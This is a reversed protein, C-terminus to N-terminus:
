PLRMLRIFVPFRVAKKNEWQPRITEMFAPIPDYGKVNIFRQIASWTSLYGAFEEATWQLTIAFSPSQVEEFPFHISQYRDEVLKRATDWYPGVTEHYFKLFPLDIIPNITCNTYGWVALWAGPKATRIAEKYFAPIDFWHLAQGVTILDFSKDPFNTREAPQMSYSINKAPTAEDLQQKSIDTAYVTDFQAALVRAVQGNGTACDWATDFSKLHGFIFRYLEDPYTPRFAAYRKAQRSFYDKRSM